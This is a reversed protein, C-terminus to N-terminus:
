LAAEARALAVAPAGSQRTLDAEPGPLDPMGFSLLGTLALLAPAPALVLLLTHVPHGGLLGARLAHGNASDCVTCASAVPAALWLGAVSLVRFLAPM